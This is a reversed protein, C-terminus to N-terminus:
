RFRKNEIPTYVILLITITEPSCHVSEAMCMCHISEGGFKRVIWAAVCCHASNGTSYLLAKDNIRKLYLPTYMDM